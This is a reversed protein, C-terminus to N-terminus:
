GKAQLLRERIPGVDLLTLSVERVVSRERERKNDASFGYIGSSFSLKTRM